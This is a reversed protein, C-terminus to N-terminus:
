NILFSISLLSPNPISINFLFFLEPFITILYLDKSCNSSIDFFSLFYVEAKEYLNIILNKLLVNNNLFSNKKIQLETEFM